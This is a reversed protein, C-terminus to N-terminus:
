GYFGEQMGCLSAEERSPSYYGCNVCRWGVEIYTTYFMQAGGGMTSSHQCHFGCSTCVGENYTHSHGATMACRSDDVLQVRGCIECYGPTPSHLHTASFPCFDRTSREPSRPGLFLGVFDQFSKPQEDRFLVLMSLRFPFREAHCACVGTPIGYGPRQLRGM